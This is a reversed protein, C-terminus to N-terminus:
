FPRLSAAAEEPAVPNIFCGSSWEFGAAFSLRPLVELHWHYGQYLKEEFPFNQLLLNYSLDKKKNELRNILRRTLTAAEHLLNESSDEFSREGEKPVLWTEYPFRSVYPCFLLFNESESIKLKEQFLATSQLQSFYDGREGKAIIKANKIRMDVYNPVFPLAIIQCHAHQISAGALPGVNQFVQVYVIEEKERFHLIRDRIGYFTLRAQDDSLESISRCHNASEILIEHYGHSPNSNLVTESTFLSDGESVHKSSSQVSPYKNPVVRISWDKENVDTLVGQGNYVATPTPTEDEQGRCFPCKKGDPFTEPLPYEQPRNKRQRAIVVTHGTLPDYRFESTDATEM